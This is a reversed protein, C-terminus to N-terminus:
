FSSMLTESKEVSLPEKFITDDLYFLNDDTAPCTYM